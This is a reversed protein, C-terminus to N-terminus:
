KKLIVKRCFEALVEDEYKADRWCDTAESSFSKNTPNWYFAEAEGCDGIMFRFGLCFKAGNSYIRYEM